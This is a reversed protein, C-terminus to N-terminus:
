ILGLLKGAVTALGTIAMGVVWWLATHGSELKAIRQIEEDRETVIKDHIKNIKAEVRAYWQKDM